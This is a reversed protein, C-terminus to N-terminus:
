ELIHDFLKLSEAIIQDLERKSDANLTREFLGLLMEGEDNIYLDKYLNDFAKMDKNIAADIQAISTAQAANVLAKLVKRSDDDDAMDSFVQMIAIGVGLRVKEFKFHLNDGAKPQNANNRHRSEALEFEKYVAAESKDFLGPTETRLARTILQEFNTESM